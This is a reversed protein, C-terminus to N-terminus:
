GSQPQYASCEFDDENQQDARNLTCLVYEEGGMDKKRCTLCLGPMSILDPNIETGDDNFFRGEEFM